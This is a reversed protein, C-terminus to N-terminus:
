AGIELTETAHRVPLDVREDAQARHCREFAAALLGHM